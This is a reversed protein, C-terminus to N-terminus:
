ANFLIVMKEDNAKGNSNFNCRVSSMMELESIGIEDFFLLFYWRFSERDICGANFLIKTPFKKKNQKSNFRQLSMCDTHTKSYTYLPLEICHITHLSYIFVYRRQALCRCVMFFRNERELTFDNSNSQVGVVFFPCISKPVNSSFYKYSQPKEDYIDIQGLLM